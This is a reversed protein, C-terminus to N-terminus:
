LLWRLSLCVLAHRSNDWALCKGAVRKRNKLSLYICIYMHVHSSRRTCLYLTYVHYKRKPNYSKMQRKTRQRCVSCCVQICSPCCCCLSRLSSPGSPSSKRPTRVLSVIDRCCCRTSQVSVLLTANVHCGLCNRRCLPSCVCSAFPFPGACGPTATTRLIGAYLNGAGTRVADFVLVHLYYDRVQSMHSSCAPRSIGAAPASLSFSSHSCARLEIEPAVHTFNPAVPPSTNKETGHM